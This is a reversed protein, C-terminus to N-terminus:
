VGKRPSRLKVFNKNNQLKVIRKGWKKMLVNYADM